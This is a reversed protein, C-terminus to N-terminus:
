RGVSSDDRRPRGPPGNLGPASAHAPRSQRGRSKFPFPPSTGIPLSASGGSVPLPQVPVPLPSCFDSVNGVLLSKPQGAEDMAIFSTQSSALGYELGLRLVDRKCAETLPHIDEYGQILHRAAILHLLRTSMGTGSTVPTIPSVPCELVL